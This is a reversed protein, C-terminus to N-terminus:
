WISSDVFIIDGSRLEPDAVERGKRYPHRLDITQMEDDRVLLVDNRSAYPTFGGSLTIAQFATLRVDPEPDIAGPRAVEGFVFIKSRRSVMVMDGPKIEADEAFDGAFVKEMNVEILRAEEGEGAAPRSIVVRSRDAADALGGARGIMESCRLALSNGVYYTGPVKIEGSVYVPRSRPIIVTDGPELNPDVAGKEGAILGLVDVFIEDIRGEDNRRRVVVNRLDANETFGGTSSVAQTVTLPAPPRIEMAAGGELVEGTVYVTRPGYEVIKVTVFANEIDAEVYAASLEESLVAESKGGAAVWGTLPLRIRGDAHVRAMRSLNPHEFVEVALIDGPRVASAPNDARVGIVLSFVGALVWLGIGARSRVRCNVKVSNRM